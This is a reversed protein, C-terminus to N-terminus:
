CYGPYQEILYDELIGLGEVSGELYADAHLSAISFITERDGISTVWWDDTADDLIDEEKVLLGKKLSVEAYELALKIVKEINEM